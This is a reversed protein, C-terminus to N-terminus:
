SAATGIVILAVILGYVMAMGVVFKIAHTWHFTYPEWEYPPTIEDALSHPRISVHNADRLGFRIPSVGDEGGLLADLERNAEHTM